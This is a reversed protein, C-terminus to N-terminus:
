FEPLSRMWDPWADPSVGGATTYPGATNFEKHWKLTWLEKLPVKRATGDLFSCGVAGDHRNICCRAMNFGSGTSWAALENSAPANTPLPWLDFRLSDVFLPVEHGGGESITRWGNRVPVNGEFTAGTISLAYGNIGYSGAIGNPGASNGGENERYIGWASTITFRNTSNGAEDTLPKTATPCFWTKNRKWDKLQEDLQWPWWYGTGGYGSWIKGDNAEAYITAQMHWQKLNSTCALTRAQEKVRNLAPMLISMLLAIIAIVVLLEILTFGKKSHM